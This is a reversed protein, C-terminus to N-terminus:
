FFHVSYARLVLCFDLCELADDKKADREWAEGLLICGKSASGSFMILHTTHSDRMIRKLEM